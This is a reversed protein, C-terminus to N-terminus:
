NWMVFHAYVFNSLDRKLHEGILQMGVSSHLVFQLSANKNKSTDELYYLILMIRLTQIGERLYIAVVTIVRKIVMMYIQCCVNKRRRGEWGNKGATLSLMKIRTNKMRKRRSGGRAVFGIATELLTTDDLNLEDCDSIILLFQHMFIANKQKYM